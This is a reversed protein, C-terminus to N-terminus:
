DPTVRRRLEPDAIQKRMHRKALFEAVKLRNPNKVFGIVNSERATYIGGRVLKQLWPFTKYLRREFRTTPRDTHPFIWAPNLEFSFSYLHSPVDCGCGPYTNAWWTGGVEDDRELVVFDDVGDEKLRIAMGLGSFGTGVIAVDVESPLTDAATTTMPSRPL